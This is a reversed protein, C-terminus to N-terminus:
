IIHADRLAAIRADDYGSERLIADSHEGARPPPMRLTPPTASMRFPTEVIPAPRPLGEYDILKLYGMAQVHADDLTEQPSYVPYAPIRADDLAGLAEDRTREACWTKMRASIIEGHLGRSHDDKFRPDSLWEDEGMLKVWRRYIPQGAAQVLIWGDKVKFMDVPAALQGRNLTATRNNNLVAQEILFSSAIMLATSVLSTEVMQGEGTQDRHRLAALVAVAGAMASAYDVYPVASRVPQEPTGSRYVAGSMVQGVGDFGIRDSYPGGHGYASSMMLIIDPRIAKLSDYDIGMTKLVPFPMNAIVIDSRLVLSRVVEAGAPKGPDLTISRKNRNNQLFMTGEGHATVPTMGRDESGGLKDVRIVDAGLDGLLAACCPGAIYRGFDLVRIGALVGEAGSKESEAM